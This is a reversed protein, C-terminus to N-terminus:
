TSMASGIANNRTPWATGNRRCLDPALSKTLLACRRISTSDDVRAPSTRPGEGGVIDGIDWGQDPLCNRRCTRRTSTSSSGGVHGPHRRVPGRVRKAHCARGGRM